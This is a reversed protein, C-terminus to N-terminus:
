GILSLSFIYLKHHQCQIIIKSPHIKSVDNKKLATVTNNAQAFHEQQRLLFVINDKKVFQKQGHSSNIFGISLMIM